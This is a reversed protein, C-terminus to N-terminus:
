HTHVKPIKSLYENYCMFTHKGHTQETLNNRRALLSIKKKLQPSIWMVYFKANEFISWQWQPVNM